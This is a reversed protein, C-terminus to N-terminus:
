LILARIASKPPTANGVVGASNLLNMASSVSFHALTIRAAFILASYLQRGKSPPRQREGARAPVGGKAKDLRDAMGGNPGHSPDAATSAKAKFNVYILVGGFPLDM